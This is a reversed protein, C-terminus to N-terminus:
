GSSRLPSVASYNVSRLRSIIRVRKIFLDLSQSKLGSQGGLCGLALYDNDVTQLHILYLGLGKVGEELLDARLALSQDDSLINFLVDDLGRAVDCAHGGGDGGDEAGVHNEGVANHYNVLSGEGLDLLHVCFSAQM